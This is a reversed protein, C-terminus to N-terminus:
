QKNKAVVVYQLYKMDTIYKKFFINLLFIQKGKWWRPNIGDISIVEFNTDSFLRKISKLTFFRLHTRDLIGADTYKFDMDLLIHKINEIYRFNPISAIIFGNPSLLKKVQELPPYPDPFHELSDNFIIADFYNIPLNTTEDFLGCIVTDINNKAISAAESNPEVGWVEINRQSKLTKGFAGNGCGIDLLTKCSTPIFNIVESRDHSYYNM